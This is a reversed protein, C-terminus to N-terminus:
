VNQATLQANLKEMVMELTVKDIAFAPNDSSITTGRKDPDVAAMCEPRQYPILRMPNTHGYIIVTPAGAAEAIYGPGTDNSIVAKAQSLLAVLQPISTAGTLDIIPINSHQQIDAVIPKDKGTGVAIIEANLQEHLRGAISAFKEAPWCKSAHASSPILVAYSKGNLEKESLLQRVAEKDKAPPDLHVEPSFGEIGIEQLVAHYYDLVHISHDPKKVKHTYFFTGGERAESMGIRVPAGTMRAFLGTRFLGQLDLVLDYHTNKLKRHFDRLGGFAKPSYYWKGMEKRDFLLVEDLGQVCNLLPAFETRVLWTLKAAPFSQRLCSVVPLAHVIDGLASPKIILINKFDSM